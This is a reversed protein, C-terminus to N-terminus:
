ATAEPLTLTVQMGIPIEKAMAEPLHVGVLLEGEPAYEPSTSLFTVQTKIEKSM